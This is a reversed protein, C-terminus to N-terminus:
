HQGGPGPVFLEEGWALQSQDVAPSALGSSRLHQNNRRERVQTRARASTSLASDPLRRFAGLAVRSAGLPSALVGLLGGTGGSLGIYAWCMALPNAFLM